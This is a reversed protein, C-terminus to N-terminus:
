VLGLSRRSRSKRDARQRTRKDIEAARKEHMKCSIEAGKLRERRVRLVHQENLKHLEYYSIEYRM